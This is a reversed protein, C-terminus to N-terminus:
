VLNDFLRRANTKLSSLLGDEPKKVIILPHTTLTYARKIPYDRSLIRWDQEDKKAFNVVKWDGNDTTEWLVCMHNYSRQGNYKLPKNRDTGAWYLEEVPLGVLIPTKHLVSQLHDASLDAIEFYGSIWGMSRATELAEDPEAGEGKISLQEFLAKWDHVPSKSLYNAVYAISCAVCGLQLGQYVPPYEPLERTVKSTNKEVKIGKELIWQKPSRFGTKLGGYFLM